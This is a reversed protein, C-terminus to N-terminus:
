AEPTIVQFFIYDEKQLNLDGWSQTPSDFSSAVVTCMTQLAFKNALSSIFRLTGSLSQKQSHKVIYSKM